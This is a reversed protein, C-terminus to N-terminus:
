NHRDCCAFSLIIHGMLIKSRSPYIRQCTCSFNHLNDLPCILVLKGLEHIQGNSLHICSSSRTQYYYSLNLGKLSSLFSGAVFFLKSLLLLYISYGLFWNIRDNQPLSFIFTLQSFRFVNTHSYHYHFWHFIYTHDPYISVQHYYFLIVYAYM